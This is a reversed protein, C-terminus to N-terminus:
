NLWNRKIIQETLFLNKINKQLNLTIKENFRHYDLQKASWGEDASFSTYPYYSLEEIKILYSTLPNLHIYRSLHL